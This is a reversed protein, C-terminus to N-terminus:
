SRGRDLAEDLVLMPHRVRVGVAALHMSCGPNASAV